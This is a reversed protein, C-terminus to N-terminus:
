GVNSRCQELRALGLSNCSVFYGTVLQEKAAKGLQKIAYERRLAAGKSAYQEQYVMAIAPSSRFFRAGRGRQHEALRRAPNTTIGCYLAGSAARILYVFWPPSSPM